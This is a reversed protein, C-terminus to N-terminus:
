RTVDGSLVEQITSPQKDIACFAAELLRRATHLLNTEDGQGVDRLEDAIATIFPLTADPARQALSQRTSFVGARQGSRPNAPRSKRSKQLSVRNQEQQMCIM